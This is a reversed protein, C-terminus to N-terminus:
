NKRSETLEKVKNIMFPVMEKAILFGVFYKRTSKFSLLLSSIIAEASKFNIDSFGEKLSSTLSGSNSLSNSIKVLPNNKFSAEQEEIVEKLNKRVQQLEDFSTIDYKNALKKSM